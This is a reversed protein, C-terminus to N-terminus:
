FYIMQTSLLKKKTRKFFIEIINKDDVHMQELELISKKNRAAYIFLHWFTSTDKQFIEDFIHDLLFNCKGAFWIVNLICCNKQTLFITLKIIHYARKTASFDFWAVYAFNHSFIAYDFITTVDLVLTFMSFAFVFLRKHHSKLLLKSTDFRTLCSARLKMAIRMIIHSLM